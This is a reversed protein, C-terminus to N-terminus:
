RPMASNIHSYTNNEQKGIGTLMLIVVISVLVLILMYEVLGQGLSGDALRDLMERLKRM